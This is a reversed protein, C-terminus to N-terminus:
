NTDHMTSFCLLFDWDKQYTAIAISYFLCGFSDIRKLTSIWSLFFGYFSSELGLYLNEHTFEKWVDKKRIVSVQIFPAPVQLVLFFLAASSIHRHKGRCSSLTQM